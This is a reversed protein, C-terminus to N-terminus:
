LTRLAHINLTFHSNETGFHFSLFVFVFFFLYDWHDFQDWFSDRRSFLFIFYFRSEVMFLM